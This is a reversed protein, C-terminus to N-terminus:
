GFGERGVQRERENQRDKANKKRNMIKKGSEEESKVIAIVM